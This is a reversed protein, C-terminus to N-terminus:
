SQSLSVKFGRTIPQSSAEILALIQWPFVLSDMEQKFSQSQSLYNGPTRHNTLLLIWASSTHNTLLPLETFFFCYLCNSRLLILRQWWLVTFQIQGTFSWPNRHNLLFFVMFYVSTLEWKEYVKIFPRELQRFFFFM